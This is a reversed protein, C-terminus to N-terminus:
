IWSDNIKLLRDKKGDMLFPCQRESFISRGEQFKKDNIFSRIRFDTNRPSYRFSHNRIFRWRDWLALLYANERSFLRVVVGKKLLFCTQFWKETRNFFLFHHLITRGRSEWFIGDTSIWCIWEIFFMSFWYFIRFSLPSINLIEYGESRIFSTSYVSFIRSRPFTEVSPLLLSKLLGPNSSLLLHTQWRELHQRPLYFCDSMLTQPAKGSPRGTGPVGSLIDGTGSDPPHFPFRQTMSCGNGSTSPGAEWPSVTWTSFQSKM